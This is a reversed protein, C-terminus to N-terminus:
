EARKKNRARVKFWIPSGIFRFAARIENALFREYSFHLKV